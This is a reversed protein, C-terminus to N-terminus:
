DISALKDNQVLEDEVNVLENVLVWTAAEHELVVDATVDALEEVTAVAKFVVHVARRGAAVLM